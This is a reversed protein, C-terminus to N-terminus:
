DTFTAVVFFPNLLNQKNYTLQNSVLGAEYRQMNMSSELVVAHAVAATDWEM